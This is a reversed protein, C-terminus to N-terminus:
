MPAYSTTIPYGRYAQRQVITTTTIEGAIGHSTGAPNATTREGAIARVVSCVRDDRPVHVHRRKIKVRKIKIKKKIKISALPSHKMKHEYQNRLKHASYVRYKRENRRPPPERLPMKRHSAALADQLDQQELALCVVLVNQGAVVNCWTNVDGRPWGQSMHEPCSSGEFIM